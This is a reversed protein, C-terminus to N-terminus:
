NQSLAAPYQATLQSEAHAALDLLYQLAKLSGQLAAERQLFEHPKEPNFDLSAKEHAYSALLNQIRQKNLSTLICSQLEEQETFEYSCYISPKLVAM